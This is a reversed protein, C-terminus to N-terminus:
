APEGANARREIESEIDAIRKEIEPLSHQDCYNRWWFGEMLVKVIEDSRYPTRLVDAVSSPVSSRLFMQFPYSPRWHAARTTDLAMRRIWRQSSSTM